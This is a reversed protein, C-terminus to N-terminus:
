YNQLHAMAHRAHLTMSKKSPTMSRNCPIENEYKLRFKSTKRYVVFNRCQMISKSLSAIGVVSVSKLLLCISPTVYYEFTPTNISVVSFGFNILFVHFGERIGDSFKAVLSNTLSKIKEAV